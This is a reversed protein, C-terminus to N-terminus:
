EFDKKLLEFQKSFRLLYYSARGERGLKIIVFYYMERRLQFVAFARDFTLFSLYKFFLASIKLFFDFSFGFVM